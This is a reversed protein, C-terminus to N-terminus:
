FFFNIELTWNASTDENRRRKLGKGEVFKKQKM